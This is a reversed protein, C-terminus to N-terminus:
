LFAICSYCYLNFHTEIPDIGVKKLWFFRVKAGRSCVMIDCMMALESGGGLCDSFKNNHFYDFRSDM